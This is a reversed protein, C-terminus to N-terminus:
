GAVWASGNYFVPCVISGGGTLSGLFTPASNQDTVFARDGAVVGTLATLASVTYGPSLAVPGGHMYSRGLSTIYVHDQSSNDNQQRAKFAGNGGSDLWDGARIGGGNGTAVGWQNAPTNAEFSALEDFNDTGVLAGAHPDTHNLMVPTFGTGVSNLGDIYVGEKGANDTYGLRATGGTPSAKLHIDGTENGLSGGIFTAAQRNSPNGVTTSAIVTLLQATPDWSFNAADGAFLGGAAFVVAGNAPPSYTVTLTGSTLDLGTGLTVTTYTGGDGGLLDADPIPISGPPVAWRGNAALFAPAAGSGAPPAPVLGEAGGTGTDAAFVVDDAKAIFYSNWQEATPVEGQVLNPSTGM